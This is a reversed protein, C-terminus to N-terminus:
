YWSLGQSKLSAILLDHLLLRIENEFENHALLKATLLEFRLLLSGWM